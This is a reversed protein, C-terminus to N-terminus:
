KKVSLAAKKLASLHEDKKGPLEYVLYLLAQFTAEIKAILDADFAEQLTVDGGNPHISGNGLDKIVTLYETNLETAWKPASNSLLEKELAAIMERLMGKQYGQEFLLQELAARYMSVAASNAGVSHSRSAQDLYYAVPKPTLATALGGPVASFLALAPGGPGAYIVGTLNSKCQVCHYSLLSPPLLSSQPGDRMRVISHAVNGYLPGFQERFAGALSIATIYMRRLDGCKPCRMLGGDFPNGDVANKGNNFLAATIGNITDIAASM